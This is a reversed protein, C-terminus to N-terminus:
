KRGQIEVAQRLREILSTENNQNEISSEIKKRNFFQKFTRYVYRGSKKKAKAQRIVWALLFLQESEDIKKKQAGKM